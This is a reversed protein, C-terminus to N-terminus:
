FRYIVGVSLNVDGKGTNDDGLKSAREWAVRAGVTPTFDYGAGIGLKWNSGSHKPNTNAGPAFVVAGTASASIRVEDFLAGLKAFLM